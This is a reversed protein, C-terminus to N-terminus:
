KDNNIHYDKMLKNIVMERIIPDTVIIRKVIDEFLVKGKPTYNLGQRIEEPSYLFEVEEEEFFQKFVEM